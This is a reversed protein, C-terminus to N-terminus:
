PREQNAEDISSFERVPHNPPMPAHTEGVQKGELPGGGLLALLRQGVHSRLCPPQPQVSPHDGGERREEIREHGAVLREDVGHLQRIGVIPVHESGSHDALGTADHREIDRVKRGVAESGVAQMGHMWVVEEQINFADIRWGKGARHSLVQVM